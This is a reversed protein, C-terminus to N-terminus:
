RKKREGQASVFPSDKSRWGVARASPVQNGFGNDATIEFREGHRGFGTLLMSDVLGLEGFARRKTSPCMCRSEELSVPSFNRCRRATDERGERGHTRM